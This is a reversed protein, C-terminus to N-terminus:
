RKRRTLRFWLGQWMAWDERVWRLVLVALIAALLITDAM